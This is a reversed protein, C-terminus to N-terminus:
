KCKEVVVEYHGDVGRIDRVQQGDNELSPPVNRIPEGEDLLVRLTQGAVMMELQLKAQVYNFPCQVGRLDMEADADDSGATLAEKGTAAVPAHFDLSPDMSDYLERVRGALEGVYGVAEAGDLRGDRIEVADREVTQYRAAVLGSQVFHERFAAFAEADSTPQLGRTVLLARTALSLARHLDTGPEGGGNGLGRRARYLYRGAEEIDAEILDRVGAGCEGPGLGELSFPQDSGWDAYLEPMEEYPPLEGCSAVLAKLDDTGKRELFAHFGEGDARNALYRSLIAVLLAPVRRAPVTGVPQGLAASGEEIRGGLLVRYFPAPRGDVRRALGHLGIAGIPHQGCSNPCGSVRIDVDALDDLPLGISELARGVEDALGRSLCIGLNCTAAGPCSLVDSVGCAGPSALGIRDLELYLPHLDTWRLGRLAINQRHTIRISREGYRSVIRGLQRLQEATLNGLPLHIQVWCREKHRQTRVASATWALFAADPDSWGDSGAVVGQAGELGEPAAGPLERIALPAMGEARVEELAERYAKHFEEDGLREAVFRLRARNRNDRDGLRDFLRLVAEMVDAVEDQHIFDEIRIAVRSQAGMGGGAYVSFGYETRGGAERVKAIFGLDNVTSLACSESCGSFAVKFKRPLVGSRPDAMYRETLAVAYPAVDFAERECVGADACATINRITNGGSGRATLSVRSLLGLVSPTDEIRVGHIQIGQRDTVHPTGDGYRESLDAVAGMQGPTLGGAPVKIRVMHTKGGRESYIGRPVRYGKFAEENIEGAQLREVELQYFDLEDIVEQSVKYFGGAVTGTGM